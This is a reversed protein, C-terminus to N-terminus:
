RRSRASRACRRRRAGEVVPHADEPGQLRGRPAAAPQRVDPPLRQGLVGHRPHGQARAQRVAGQGAPRRHHGQVRGHGQVPVAPRVGRIGQRGAPRVEVAVARADARLRAAAGGDRGQGQVAPQESLGGGERKGSPASSPWSRSACRARARPPTPRSSTASSSSSRPRRAPAHRLRRHRARRRRRPGPPPLHQAHPDGSPRKSENHFEAQRLGARVHPPARSTELGAITPLARAASSITSEWMLGARTRTGRAVDVYVAAMCGASGDGGLRSARRAPSGASPARARRPAARPPPHRQHQRHQERHRHRDPQLQGVAGVELRALALQDGVRQRELRLDGLADALLLHLEVLERAAEVDRLRGVASALCSATTSPRARSHCLTLQTSASVRSRRPRARRCRCRRAARGSRAGSRAAARRREAPRGAVEHHAVRRGRQQALRHRPPQRM